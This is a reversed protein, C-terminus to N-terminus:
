SGRRELLLPFIAEKIKGTKLDILQIKCDVLLYTEKFGSKKTHDLTKILEYTARFDKRGIKVPELEGYAGEVIEDWSHLTNEWLGAKIKSFLLRFSREQLIEEIQDYAARRMGCLPKLLPGLIMM